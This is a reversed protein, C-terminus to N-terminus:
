KRAKKKNLEKFFDSEDIEPLEEEEFLWEYGKKSYIMWVRSDLERVWKTAGSFPCSIFLDLYQEKIKM